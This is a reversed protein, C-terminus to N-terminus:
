QNEQEEHWQCLIDRHSTQCTHKHNHAIVHATPATEHRDQLIGLAIDDHKPDGEQEGDDEVEGNGNLHTKDTSTQEKHATHGLGSIDLHNTIFDIGFLLLAVELQAVELM